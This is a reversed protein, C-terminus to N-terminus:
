SPEDFMADLRLIQLRALTLNASAKDLVAHMALGPNRPVSRLLLHHAGLTIAAEPFAVGFGLGRSATAMASVLASGHMGLEASGPSAGAHAVPDGGPVEFVCCSIVGNLQSLQQVYREILTPAAAFQASAIQPM